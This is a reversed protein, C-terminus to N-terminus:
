TSGSTRRSQGRSPRRSAPPCAAPPSRGGTFQLLGPAGGGVQGTANAALWGFDTGEKLKRLAGEAADRSTFALSKIKLMEPNSYDKLHGNYYGKVEEERMKNGPVIVKQVFADFVLSDQFSEVRERYIATRDIGARRAELNLLRRSITANLADEKRANM